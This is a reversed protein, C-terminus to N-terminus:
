KKVEKGEKIESEVFCRRQDYELFDDDVIV